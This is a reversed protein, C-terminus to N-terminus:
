QLKAQYGYTYIRTSYIRSYKSTYKRTLSLAICTKPNPLPKKAALKAKEEQELKPDRQPPEQTLAYGVVAPHSVGPNFYSARHVPADAYAGPRVNELHSVPTSPWGSWASPLPVAPLLSVLPPKPPANPAAGPQGPQAVASAPQASHSAGAPAPLPSVAPQQPQLSPDLTGSQGDPANPDSPQVGIPPLRAVLGEPLDYTTDPRGPVAVAPDALLHKYGVFVPNHVSPDFREVFEVKALSPVPPDPPPNRHYEYETFM